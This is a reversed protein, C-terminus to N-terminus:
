TADEASPPSLQMGDAIEYFSRASHCRPMAYWGNGIRAVVIRTQYEHGDYGEMALDLTIFAEAYYTSMMQSQLAAVQDDEPNFNRTAVVRVPKKPNLGKRTKRLDYFTFSEDGQKFRTEHMCEAFKQLTDISGDCVGLLLHQVFHRPSEMAVGRFLEEAAEEPTSAAVRDFQFPALRTQAPTTARNFGYAVVAVFFTAILVCAITKAFRKM